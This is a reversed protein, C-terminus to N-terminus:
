HLGTNVLAMWHQGTGDLVMWHGKTENLAMLAIWHQGTRDLAM